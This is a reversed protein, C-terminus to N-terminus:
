AYFLYVFLEHEYWNRKFKVTIKSATFLQAVFKTITRCHCLLLLLALLYFTNPFQLHARIFNNEILQFQTVTSALQIYFIKM